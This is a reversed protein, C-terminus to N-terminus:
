VATGQQDVMGLYQINVIYVGKKAYYEEVQDLADQKDNADVRVIKQVDNYTDPDTTKVAVRHRNGPEEEVAESAGQDPMPRQGPRGKVGRKETSPPKTPPVIDGMYRQKPPEAKKLRDARPMVVIPAGESMSVKYQTELHRKIKEAKQRAAARKQPSKENKSWHVATDYDAKLQKIKDEKGEAVGQEKIPGRCDPVMKGGKGKKMGIQKYNDWCPDGKDEEVGQESGETIIDNIKM